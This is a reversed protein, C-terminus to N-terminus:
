ATIKGWKLTGNVEIARYHAHAGTTALGITGAATGDPAVSGNTLTVTCTGGGGSKVFLCLEQGVYQPAPVTRTQASAGVTIPCYTSHRRTDYTGGNGPDVAQFEGVRGAESLDWLANTKAM